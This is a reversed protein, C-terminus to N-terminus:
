GFSLMLTALSRDVNREVVGASRRRRDMRGFGFPWFTELTPDVFQERRKAFTVM